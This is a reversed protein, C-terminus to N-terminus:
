GLAMRQEALEAFWSAGAPLADDDFNYNPNHLDASDGNGILAFAGPRAMLMEAFDEGGMSPDFEQLVSGAVATAAAAAVGAQEEANITPTVGRMYTVEASAGYAEATSKAVTKIREIVMAQVDPDMYRVTGGLTVTESIVNFAKSESQIACVSLVVTQLPDVNRSTISHLATVVHSAALTSDVALHPKAAHGGRGKVVIQFGDAAALIPGPRVAFQGVPLGPWNHMGYVEQIGWRDMLGDKLMAKAGGGGEEAPQFILVVTGDFGRTDALYQAAGLLMTTHGDHGCAHMVGESQSAYDVGTQEPIPLADMDARFGLVRGSGTERGHIVGIVGTGGVGEVVEDCGFSRLKEAVVGATRHEENRLEPHMHFDQRWAALEPQRESISNRVPM